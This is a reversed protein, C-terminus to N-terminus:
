GSQGESRAPHPEARQHRSQAGPLTFRRNQSPWSQAYAIGLLFSFTAANAPLYLPSDVLGHVAVLATVSVGLAPFVQDKQRRGVGKLCIWAILGVAAILVVAAPIGLEVAAGLYLNHSYNFTNWFAGDNHLYFVDRASGAGHGTLPAELIAALLLKYGAFRGGMVGAELDALRSALHAGAVVFLVGWLAVL